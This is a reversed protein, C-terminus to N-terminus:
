INMMKLTLDNRTSDNDNIYVRKIIIIIKKLTRDHKKIM